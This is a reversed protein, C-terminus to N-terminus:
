QTTAMVATAMPKRLAVTRRSARRVASPRMLPRVSGATHDPCRRSRMRNLCATEGAASPMEIQTSGSPATFGAGRQTRGDM